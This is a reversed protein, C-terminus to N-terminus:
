EVPGHQGVYITIIICKFKRRELYIKNECMIDVLHEIHSLYGLTQITVTFCPGGGDAVCNDNFPYKLDLM